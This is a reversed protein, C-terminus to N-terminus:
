RAEQITSIELVPWQGREVGRRFVITGTAEVRKTALKALEASQGAIEISRVSKGEIKIESDLRIAWGTSEGGIGVVRVLIGKVAVERRNEPQAYLSTLILLSGILLTLRSKWM